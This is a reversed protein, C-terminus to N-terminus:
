GEWYLLRGCNECTVDDETEKLRRLTHTTLSVSCAPCIDQEGIKVIALNHARSRVYDYRRLTGEDEITQVIATREAQAEDWQLNLRALTEQYNNEVVRLQSEKDALLNRLEETKTQQAEVEEMLLLTAEELGGKQRGLAEVEHNLNEVEKANTITGSYLRDRAKQRKDEVSKLQLEKDRMETELTHLQKSEETLRARLSAAEATLAAGSDLAKRAKEVQALRTDVQQLAYLQRLIERL